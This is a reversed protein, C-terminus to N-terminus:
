KRKFYKLISEKVYPEIPLTLAKKPTAWIYNIGENDLKVKRDKTKCAHVFCIFHKKGKIGKGFIFELVYIFRIDQVRLGTEERIERKFADVIKEGLEVHGGPIVYKNGWKHAKMLFIEGKPNFILGGTTVEPYKQKAM